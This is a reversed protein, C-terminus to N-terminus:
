KLLCTNRFKPLLFLVKGTWVMVTKGLSIAHM